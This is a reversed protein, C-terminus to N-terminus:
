FENEEIYRLAWYMLGVFVALAILIIGILANGAKFSLVTALLFPIGLITAAITAKRRTWRININTGISGKGGTAVPVRAEQSKKQGGRVLRDPLKPNKNAM